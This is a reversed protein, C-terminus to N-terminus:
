RPWFSGCLFAGAALGPRPQSGRTVPTVTVCISRYQVGAIEVVARNGFDLPQSMELVSGGPGSLALRFKLQGRPIEGM